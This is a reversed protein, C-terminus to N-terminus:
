RVFVWYWKESIQAIKNTLDTIKKDAEVNKTKNSTFIKNLNKLKDDFDAEEVFDAIDAKTTLNRQKLRAAVNEATLNNLEKTTVYKNSLDHDIVKKKIEGINKTM